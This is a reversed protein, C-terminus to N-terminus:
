ADIGETMGLTMLQQVVAYLKLWAAKVEETFKDGLGTQLTYILAQGVPAFSDVQVDKMHHVIGLDILTEKLEEPNDLMGIAADISEMVQIGHRKLLENDATVAEGDFPFLKQLEPAIEFLKVFLVTGAKELDVRVYSWTDIILEVQRNTLEANEKASDKGSADVHNATTDTESMKSVTVLCSHQLM